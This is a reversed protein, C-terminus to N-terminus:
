QKEEVSCSFKILTCVITSLKGEYVRKHPVHKLNSNMMILKITLYNGGRCSQLVLIKPKGILSEVHSIHGVLDEIMWGKKKNKDLLHGKDNGHCIVALLFCNRDNHTDNQLMKSEIQGM